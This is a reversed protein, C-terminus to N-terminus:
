NGCLSVWASVWLSMMTQYGLRFCFQNFICLKIKKQGGEWELSRRGLWRRQIRLESCVPCLRDCGPSVQLTKNDKGTSPWVPLLSQNAGKAPCAQDMMAQVVFGPSRHGRFFCSPNSEENVPWFLQYLLSFNLVSCPFPQVGRRLM